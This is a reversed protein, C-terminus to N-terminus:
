QPDGGIQVTLDLDSIELIISAFREFDVLTFPAEGDVARKLCEIDDFLSGVMLPPDSSDFQTREPSGVAWYYDNEIEIEDGLDAKIRESVKEFAKSLTTISIKM